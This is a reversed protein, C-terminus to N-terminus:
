HNLIYKIASDLDCHYQSELRRICFNTYDPQIMRAYSLQGALRQTDIISWLTGNTFDKLFNNIMARNRQNQKHGLTINNDKNLMLGLNWNRGASSGYRTKEHKIEFNNEQLIQAVNAEVKHWDFGLKCSILIDDAYRTYILNNAACYRQIAHDIPIFCLNTLTPSLPTGQPLGYDLTELTAVKVMETLFETSDWKAFDTLKQLQTVIWDKKCNTFFDKIDLKLFWESHWQQHVELAKKISRKAVYAFAANHTKINLDQEIFTKIDKLLQMLEADPANIERLGGSKKPIYFTEYHSIMDPQYIQRCKDIFKQVTTSFPFHEYQFAQNVIKTETTPYDPGLRPPEIGFLTSQLYSDFDSIATITTLYYM